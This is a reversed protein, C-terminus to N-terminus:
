QNEKETRLEHLEKNTQSNIHNWGTKWSIKM